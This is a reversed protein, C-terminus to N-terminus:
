PRHRSFTCISAVSNPYDNHCSSSGSPPVNGKPLMASFVRNDWGFEIENNKNGNKMKQTRRKKMNAFMIRRRGDDKSFSFFLSSTKRKKIVAYNPPPSPPAASTSAIALPLIFILFFFVNVFVRSFGM